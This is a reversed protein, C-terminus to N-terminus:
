FVFGPAQEFGPLIPVAADFLERSSLMGHRRLMLVARGVNGPERVVALLRGGDALQDSLGTPVDPVAGDVLIVNYPAQRSYGEALPGTVVAAKDVGLEAMLQDARSALAGDSELGVVTGALHALVVTSYGTACGVDLVVDDADITAAQLLRALVRPEMLYRGPAIELDEDVYAIGQMPEPVFRERPVAEIADVLRPEAVENTRLQSEVMTHRITAYDSM